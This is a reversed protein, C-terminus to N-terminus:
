LTTGPQQVMKRLEEITMYPDLIASVLRRMSAAANMTEIRAEVAERRAANAERRAEEAERRADRAAARAEGADLVAQRVQEIATDSLQDITRAQTPKREYWGKVLTVVGAGSVFATGVAVLATAWWPV